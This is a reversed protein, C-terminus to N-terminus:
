RSLPTEGFEKFFVIDAEALLANFSAIDAETFLRKNQAQRGFADRWVQEEFVDWTVWAIDKDSAEKFQSFFVRMVGSEKKQLRLRDERANKGKFGASIRSYAGYIRAVFLVSADTLTYCAGHKDFYSTTKVLSRGNGNSM